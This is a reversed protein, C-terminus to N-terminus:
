LGVMQLRQDLEEKWRHMWEEFGEVRKELWLIHEASNGVAPLKIVNADSHQQCSSPATPNLSPALSISPLVECPELHWPQTCAIALSSSGTASNSQQGVSLPVSASPTVSASPIISSTTIIPTVPAAPSNTAVPLAMTATTTTTPPTIATAALPALSDIPFNNIGKALAPVKVYFNVACPATVKTPVSFNVAAQAPLSQSSPVPLAPSESPTAAAPSDSAAPSHSSKSELDLASLM